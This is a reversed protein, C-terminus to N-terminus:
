TKVAVPQAQLATLVVGHIVTVAPAVPVPLPMTVMRTSAFLALADRGPVAVMASWAKVTFWAPQVNLTPGALTDAVAAPPVPLANTIVSAAQVHDADLLADHIVNGPPVVPVPM